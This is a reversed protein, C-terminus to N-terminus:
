IGVVVSLNPVTVGVIDIPPQVTTVADLEAVVGSVIAISEMGKTM